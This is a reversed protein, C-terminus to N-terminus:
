KRLVLQVSGDAQQRESVSFGQQLATRRAAVLAYSQKLKGLEPGAVDTLGFGGAIFDWLLLYGPKGDRRRVVGIEYPKEGGNKSCLESARPEPIRLAHECKGLDEEAFGPPLPYDGASEGWWRYTQQGRVLELGIRRAAQALDELNTVDIEVLAVHSM